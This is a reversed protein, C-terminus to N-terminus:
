RFSRSPLQVPQLRRRDPWRAPSLHGRLVRRAQLRELEELRARDVLHDAPIVEVDLHKAMQRIDLLDHPRLGMQTRTREALREAETKFGRRM